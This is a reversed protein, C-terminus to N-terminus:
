VRGARRVGGTRNKYRRGRSLQNAATGEAHEAAAATDFGIHSGAFLRSTNCPQSLFCGYLPAGQTLSHQTMAGGESRTQPGSAPGTRRLAGRRATYTSRGRGCCWAQSPPPTSRTRSSAWRHCPACPLVPHEQDVAALLVAVQPRLHHPHCGRQSPGCATCEFTGSGSPHALAAQLWVFLATCRSRWAMTRSTARVARAWCTTTSGAPPRTTLTFATLRQFASNTTGLSAPPGLTAGQLCCACGAGAPGGAPLRGAPLRCLQACLAYFLRLVCWNGTYVIIAPATTYFEVGRGSEPDLLKAAWQPRCTITAPAPPLARLAAGALRVRLMGLRRACQCVTCDAHRAAGKGLGGSRRSATTGQAGAAGKGWSVRQHGPLGSCCGSCRRGPWVAGVCQRLRGALRCPCPLGGPLLSVCTRHPLAGAANPPITLWPRPAHRPAAPCAEGQSTQEARGARGRRM